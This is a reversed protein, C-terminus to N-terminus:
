AQRPSTYSGYYGAYAHAEGHGSAARNLIVGAIRHRGIADAARKVLDYPTSEARVVIFAVDVMSALLNADTLLGVPPTDIIVFDFTQKAEDLLQRMRDSTLGRLPDSDPRGATLVTLHPTVQVLPPTITPDRLMDGLGTGTVTNFVQNLTPRRLDADILLVNRGYSGSLTLALNVSSLTKGEGALASTIMVVRTGREVQMHHVLAGLRRYEEVVEPPLSGGVVREAMAPAVTQRDPPAPTERRTVETPLDAAPERRMVDDDPTVPAGTPSAEIDWPNGPTTDQAGAHGVNAKSLAQDIRSM